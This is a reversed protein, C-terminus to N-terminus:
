RGMRRQYAALWNQSLKPETANSGPAEFEVKTQGSPQWQLWISVAIGAKSGAIRGADRDASRVEIGVDRCAGTAADFAQHYKSAGLVPAPDPESTCGACLLVVTLVAFPSRKM